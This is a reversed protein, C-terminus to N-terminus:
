RSLYEFWDFDAYAHTAPTQSTAYLGLIIGTFGGATETSLYRTDMQGISQFTTGNLSYAFSYTDNEGKVQLQINSTPVIIEKQLVFAAFSIANTLSSQFCSPGAFLKRDRARSTASQRKLMLVIVVVLLFTLSQKGSSM